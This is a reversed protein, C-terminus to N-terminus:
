RDDVPMPSPMRPARRNISRNAIWDELSPVAIVMWFSSGAAEGTSCERSM